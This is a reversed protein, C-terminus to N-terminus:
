AFRVGGEVGEFPVFVVQRRLTGRNSFLGIQKVNTVPRETVAM